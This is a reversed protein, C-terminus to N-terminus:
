GVFFGVIDRSGHLIHLILVLRGENEVRHFIVYEEAVISRLGPTLDEDRRRGLYPHQALLWFRDTISDVVRSAIEASGSAQAIYIWIEDLDVLAEPAVRVEAM